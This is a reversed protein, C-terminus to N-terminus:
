VAAVRAFADDDTRTTPLLQKTVDIRLDARLQLFESERRKSSQLGPMIPGPFPTDPLHPPFSFDNGGLLDLHRYTATPALDPQVGTAPAKIAYLRM